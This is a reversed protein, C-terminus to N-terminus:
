HKRKPLNGQLLSVKEDLAQQIIEPNQMMILSRAAERSTSIAHVIMDRQTNLPLADFGPMRVIGDLRTKVMQGALTAFDFYQKDTLEVGRIKRQPMAPFVGLRLMAQPVPDNNVRMEYIASLGGVGLVEKNPIPQGFVDVRPLLTQSLWPVKAKIADMMTRASRSYPDIGRAVQFMGVSYPVFSSLFNRVYSAGYRDHDTVAKILDSPGRMFSEDLINQSFAHMLQAGVKTADDKGIMHAVEYLDAAVSVQMGLPGLRHIDYWTEGIRISHPPGNVMTWVSREKPDSPGSGNVLGEAALSGIAVSLASGVAMRGIAMDRAVPGNSGSLDARIEHSLVGLVTRRLIAQEIINSSIHVFPDIFKLWQGGAFRANTLRTLATTFEGGKGMLTLDTASKRADQMLEPTPSTEIEGIRRAMADGELGEMAAQRYALAAMEREYNMARFFSHIAAIGRSPIRALTGVPVPVGGITFNPIAARPNVLPSLAFQRATMNEAEGPLLTTRGSKVSEWAAVVGNRVGRLMGYAQAPVEGFFVRPGEEGLLRFVASSTAAGVTEPGAKWMALLANGVSYTTHTAPGSILGNIWYELIMDGFTPKASDHMFKSVQSPTDLNMAFQAEQRLQFLTKGTADRVFDSIAQAEKMGGIERFARLARGAEATVASLTSQIMQHRTKAQGFALLEADSGTAAKAAADRVATASQVLMKRLAMVKSALGGRGFQEAFKAMDVATAEVGAAEALDLVQADSVVGRVDMFDGNEEATQRLVANIDEPTNLNDLRINGAKDILDTEPRSFPENATKPPEVPKAERAGLSEAQAESGGKGLTGSEEAAGGEGGAPGAANGNSDPQPGRAERRGTQDAIGELRADQEEPAHEAVIRDREGQVREATPHAEHPQATEADAEHLDAFAKPVEREPAITVREPKAVILRDFVDRIDDNIPSRLKAVTQYISTLWQRFQEFVRALATSPARGEMMYTEFGRAFKEHQARTIEGEKAGLWDRVTQADKTLDAPAKEDAADQMLEELWQHGTEHLFTSADADKFLTITNRTDALTIKGARRSQALEKVRPKARGAEIEPAEANYLDLATGKEGNFRAARAEYHAAILQAAAQAEETPRGAATLRKEVDAAIDTAGLGVPKTPTPKTEAPIAQPSEPTVAPATETEKPLLTAGQRASGQVPAETPQPSAQVPTEAAPAEVPAEQPMREQATRYAQGVRPALDRMAYDTEMLRQRIRAMDPSDSVTNKEIYDDRQETLEDLRAQYKKQLRPTATEMRQQLDAIEEGHPAEAAVREDRSARLEEIWRRFVEKRNSLDDFKQFTEPDIERAVAHIDPKPAEQTGPQAVEAGREEAAKAQAEAQAKMAETEAAFRAEANPAVTGKWGAEGEGIIGLSRAKDLDFATMARQTASPKATKPVGLPHPSGFFAEPIAAIDRGLQPQGLEEGIQAVGVQTGRFAATTGRLFTELAVAAPRMWAENFAKTANFNEKSYDTWIGAKRLTDESEKSLGLPEAGWGEKLGQGFASLVKGTSSNHIYNDAEESSTPIDIKTGFDDFTSPITRYPKNFFEDATPLQGASGFFEDATPLTQTAM